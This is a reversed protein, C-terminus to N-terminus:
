GIRKWVFFVCLMYSGALLCLPLLFYVDSFSLFERWAALGKQIADAYHAAAKEYGFNGYLFKSFISHVISGFRGWVSGPIVNLAIAGAASGGVFVGCWAVIKRVLATDRFDRMMEIGFAGLFSLYWTGVWMWRDVYRFLKFVPLRQLVWAIPSGDIAIAFVVLFGGAVVTALAIRRRQYGDRDEFRMARGCKTKIIVGLAVLSSFFFFTGVYLTKIGVSVYPFYLYNPFLFLLFDGIEISRGLAIAPDVGSSRISLPIYQFVPVLQPLSLIAGIATLPLLVKISKKCATRLRNREVVCFYLFVFIGFLSVSYVVFQTLGSILALGLGVGAIVLWLWRKKREIGLTQSFAYICLPTLFLVHAVPPIGLFRIHISPIYAIGILGAAFRSLGFARGAFYSFILALFYDLLLRLHVGTIEDFFSFIVRNLPDLFGGTQSLYVPSGSFLWPSWLFSQGTRIADRYFSFYPYFLSLQDTDSFIRGRFIIPAFAIVLLVAFFIGVVLATAFRHSDLYSVVRSIM